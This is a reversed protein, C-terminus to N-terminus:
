PTEKETRSDEGFETPNMVPCRTGSASPESQVLTKVQKELVSVKRKLQWVKISTRTALLIFSLLQKMKVKAVPKTAGSTIPSKKWKTTM